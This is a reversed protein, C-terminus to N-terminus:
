TKNDMKNRLRSGLGEKQYVYPNEIALRKAEAYRNDWEIEDTTKITPHYVPPFGIFNRYIRRDTYNANQGLLVRECMEDLRSMCRLGYRLNLKERSLNTTFHTKIKRSRFLDYRFQIFKEFVELKEGFFVGKDETGIDDFLVTKDVWKRFVNHGIEKNNFQLVVDLVNLKIFTKDDKPPIIKQMIEFFITKGGGPNGAIMLGTKNNEFISICSDIEKTNESDFKFGGDLVHISYETFKERLTESKLNIM